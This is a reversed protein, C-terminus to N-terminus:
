AAYIVRVSELNEKRRIYNRSEEIAIMPVGIRSSQMERNEATKTWPQM